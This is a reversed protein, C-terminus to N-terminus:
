PSSRPRTYRGTANRPARTSLPDRCTGGWWQGKLSRAHEYWDVCLGSYPAAAKEDPSEEVFYTAPRTSIELVEGTRADVAPPIDGKEPDVLMGDFLPFLLVERVEIRDEVVRGFVAFRVSEPTVRVRPPEGPDTCDHPGVPDCPQPEHGIGRIERGQWPAILTAIDRRARSRMTFGPWLHGVLVVRHAWRGLAIGFRPDGVPSVFYLGDHFRQLPEPRALGFLAPHADIMRQAAHIHELALPQDPGSPDIPAALEASAFYGTRTLAFRWSPFARQLAAVTGSLQEAPAFPYRMPYDRGTAQALSTGWGTPDVPAAQLGGGCAFPLAGVALAFAHRSLM